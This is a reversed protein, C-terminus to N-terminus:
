IQSKESEQYKSTYSTLASSPSRKILCLFLTFIQLIKLRTKRLVIYKSAIKIGKGRRRFIQLVKLANKEFCYKSVIPGKGM